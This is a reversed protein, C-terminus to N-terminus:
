LWTVLREGVLVAPINTNARPVRPIIACDAVYGGELGHIRGRADVVSAPDWDPGMKCTGVPHYYHIWSKSLDVDPAWAEEGILSAFPERAAMQRVFDLGAQLVAADKGEPDTLFAHDVAPLAEPDASVIHCSGRSMPTMCAVPLEFFYEDSGEERWPGGVPYVHLDFAETELPSRVKAIVQEEPCFGQESRARMQRILEDTGTFFLDVAPHDHLNAGVGELGHRVRIGLPELVLPDGIGSRELIAPSGYAGGCVITRGARVQERRGDVIAEAGVIRSGEVLVRDALAEGVITLNPRHRVPDLYAFATNFRVGADVNVPSPSVGQAEDLDNLDRTAPIGMAVLADMAARQYPTLDALPTPAVRMRDNARRFFPLLEDTSWGDNGDAAWADYDARAGWIAACGNHSSCGGIVRAREFDLTRRYRPLGSTFGWDHVGVGLMSADVLAKPWRGGALPGYDPGAELVLVTEDSREALLGAVVAGTTGGGLILTDVHQPLV